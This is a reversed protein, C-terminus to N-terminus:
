HKHGRAQSQNVEARAIAMGPTVRGLQTEFRFAGPGWAKQDIMLPTEEGLLRLGAFNRDLIWYGEAARQPLRTFDPERKIGLLSRLEAHCEPSVIIALVEQSFDKTYAEFIRGIRELLDAM